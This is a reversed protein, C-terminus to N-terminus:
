KAGGDDRPRDPENHGFPPFVGCPEVVSARCADAVRVADDGDDCPACGDCLPYYEGDRTMLGRRPDSRNSCLTCNPCVSM